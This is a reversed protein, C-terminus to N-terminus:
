HSATLRLARGDSHFTVTGKCPTFTHIRRNEFLAVVEPLPYGNPNNCGQQLLAYRPDVADLLAPVSSSKPGNEKGSLVDSRLAGGNLLLLYKQIAQSADGLLLLSTSGYVVRVVLSVTNSKMNSVDKDPYLIDAYAGGGFLLRMGRRAVIDRAKSERVAASVADGAQTTNETGPELFTGVFYRALVDPVGGIRGEAPSMEVLADISRDFFPMLTSLERLVSHDSPGADVLVHIGTPGQIFISSGQGVNLFSVTLGHRLPLTWVFLNSLFLIGIFIFRAM